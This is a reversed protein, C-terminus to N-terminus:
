SRCARFRRSVDDEEGDRTTLEVTVRTRRRPLRTLTLRSPFKSTITKKTKGNVKVVLKALDLDDPIDVTLKLKAGTACSRKRPIKVIESADLAGAVVEEGGPPKVVVPPPTVVPPPVPDDVPTVDVLVLIPGVKVTGDSLMYTFTDRGNFDKDPTYVFAGNPQVVVAGHPPDSADSAFKEDGDPEEDNGVLGQAPVSLPTDEPTSYQDSLGAPADNVNAVELVVFVSLSEADTADRARYLFSDTGTFNADPTYTFSGDGNLQATGHDASNIQVAELVGDDTDNALVGEAAPVVLPTDETVPYTDQAAVPADNVPAVDLSVTTIAGAVNNEDKPRYTFSDPGSYNAAPTYLFAGDPSLTVAGHAPGSEIAATMEADEDPDSDNDLVGQSFSVSLPTDETAAYSDAAGLPADNVGDFNMSVTAIASVANSPDRLRYTFSVVGYFDAPPDYSFSGQSGMQLVGDFPEEVIEVVLSDNDADSDNGRIGPAGVDIVTDEDAGYFDDAAVPADNVGTVDITVTTVSGQAGETDVPRYTFSTQGYSSQAPTFTFAGDASFDLSGAAAAPATVLQASKTSGEADTDNTLVNGSVPTDELTQFADAVGAPADNVPVVTIHVTAAASPQTGDTARYTFTDTGNFNHEPTYQIGGTPGLGVTGHAPNSLLSSTLTSGEPDYDNNLVGQGPDGSAAPVNLTADENVTYRNDATVPADNVSAITMTVTQAATLAGNNSVSRYQFSVQGNFDPPPTYTYAGTVQFNLQGVPPYSVLYAFDITGSPVSDNARVGPANVTLPDPWDEDTASSDPAATPAFVSTGVAISVKVNPGDTTGDRAHYTFTRVGIDNPAPTYTFSGNANMSVSGITAGGVPIATLTGGEVDLDNALVGPAGVVLQQNTPTSYRDPFTRPPDNVANVTITVTAPSSFQFGDHVVYTFSDPGNANPNPMYRFTGDPNMRVKGDTPPFQVLPSKQTGNPNVDNATVSAGNLVTDESMVYTDNNATVAAHAPAALVLVAASCAIVLACIRTVPRRYAQTQVM